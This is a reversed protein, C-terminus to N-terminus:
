VPKVSVLKNLREIESELSEVKEDLLRIIKENCFDNFAIDDANRKTKTFYNRWKQYLEHIKIEKDDTINDLKELFYNYTTESSSIGSEVSNIFEETTCCKYKRGIPLLQSLEEISLKEMKMLWWSAFFYEATDDPYDSFRGVGRGTSGREPAPILEAKEFRLLTSRSTKVGMTILKELVEDPSM